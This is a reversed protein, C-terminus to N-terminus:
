ASPEWTATVTLTNIYLDRDPDYGLIETATEFDLRGRPDAPHVYCTRELERVIASAKELEM